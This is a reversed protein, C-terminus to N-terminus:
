RKTTEHICIRLYRPIPLFERAVLHVRSCGVVLPCPFLAMTVLEEMSISRRSMKILASPFTSTHFGERSISRFVRPQENQTRPAYRSASVIDTSKRRSCMMNRSTAFHLLLLNSGMIIGHLTRFWITQGRNGGFSSSLVRLSSRGSLDRSVM